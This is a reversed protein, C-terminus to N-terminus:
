LHPSYWGFYTGLQDLFQASMWGGIAGLTDGLLSNPLSDARPKGGPWLPLMNIFQIGWVSNEGLEFCTHLVVWWKLRIGWFYAMVGSAWHLYTYQDFM